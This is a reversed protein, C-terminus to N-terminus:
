ISRRRRKEPWHDKVKFVPAVGTWKRFTDTLVESAKSISSRQILLADHLPLATIDHLLGLTEVADIVASSELYQLHQWRVTSHPWSHLLPHEDIVAARVDDIAYERRLDIGEDELLKMATQDSWNSHFREYGLTMAIWAKIVERPISGFTYPDISPDPAVGRKAYLITLFSARLDLEIVPEGNIRMDHRHHKEMNQYSIGSARSYLRGGMNYDFGSQDGHNYIRVFGDHNCGTIRQPAMYTNIRNVQEAAARYAPNTKDVPLRRGKEEKDWFQRKARVIVPHAVTQSRPAARFHSQWNGPTIGFRFAIELFGSKARYRATDGEGQRQTGLWVGPMWYLLDLAFMGDLVDICPRYGIRQGTFDALGRPRYLYHESSRQAVSLLDAIVAGVAQRLKRTPKNTRDSISHVSLTINEVLQVAEISEAEFSLSMFQDFPKVGHTDLGRIKDSKLEAEIHDSEIKPLSLLTPSPSALSGM